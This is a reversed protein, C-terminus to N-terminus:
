HLLNKFVPYFVGVVFDTVIVTVVLLHCSGFSVSLCVSLLSSVPNGMNKIVTGVNNISTFPETRKIMDDRLQLRCGFHILCQNNASPPHARFGRDELM